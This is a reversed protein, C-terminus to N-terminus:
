TAVVPKLRYCCSTIGDLKGIVEETGFLLRIPENRRPLRPLNELVQLRGHLTTTEHVSEPKILIQGRQLQDRKIGRLNVAVRQGPYAETVKKGHVQLERISAKLKAPMIEVDDDCRVVGNRLTGTGITGFGDITFVRDLPLYYNNGRPREKKLALLRYLAEKLEELGTEQM